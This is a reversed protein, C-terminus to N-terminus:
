VGQSFANGGTLRDIEAEEDLGCVQFIAQPTVDKPTGTIGHSKLLEFTQKLAVFAPALAAFSFIVVRFGM